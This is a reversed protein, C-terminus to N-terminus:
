IFKTFYIISTFGRRSNDKDQFRRSWNAYTRLTKRSYHRECRQRAPVDGVEEPQTEQRLMEFFLFVAHIAQQRQQETQKKERLKENFQRVQEAKSDPLQYKTRFDLFYRLWKRYDSFRDVAVERNKLIYEYRSIVADPIPLM